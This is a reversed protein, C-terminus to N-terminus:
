FLGASLLLSESLYHFEDFANSTLIHPLVVTLLALTRLMPLGDLWRLDFGYMLWRGTSRPARSAPAAAHAEAQMSLLSVRLAIWGENADGIMRAMHPSLHVIHPTLAHRASLLIAQSLALPDAGNQVAENDCALERSAFWKDRTPSLWRRAINLRLSIEILTQSFVDHHRCHAVEHQVGAALVDMSASALFNSDVGIKSRILGFSLLTAPADNLAVLQIHRPVAAAIRLQALTQQVDPSSIVHFHPVTRLTRVVARATIAVLGGAILVGDLCYEQPSHHFFCAQMDRLTEAYHVASSFLWLVPIAVPAVLLALRLNSFVRQDDRGYRDILAGLPRVVLTCLPIFILFVSLIAIVPFAFEMM